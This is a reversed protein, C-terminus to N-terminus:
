CVLEFDFESDLFRYHPSSGTKKNPISPVFYEFALSSSFGIRTAETHPLLYKFTILESARVRTRFNSFTCVGILKTVKDFCVNM